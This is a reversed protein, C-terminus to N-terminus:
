GCICPRPPSCCCAVPRRSLRGRHPPSPLWLGGRSSVRSCQRAVHQRLIHWDWLDTTQNSLKKAWHFRKLLSPTPAPLLLAPSAFCASFLTSPPSQPQRWAPHGVQNTTMSHIITRSHSRHNISISTVLTAMNESVGKKHCVKSSALVKCIMPLEASSTKLAASFTHFGIM